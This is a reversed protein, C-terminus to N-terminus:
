HPPRATDTADPSDPVDQIEEDFMGSVQSVGSSRAVEVFGMMRTLQTMVPAGGQTSRCMRSHFSLGNGKGKM